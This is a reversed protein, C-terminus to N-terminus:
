GGKEAKWLSDKPNGEGDNLKYYHAALREGTICYSYHIRDKFSRIYSLCFALFM